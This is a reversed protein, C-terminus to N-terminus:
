FIYDGSRLSKKIDLIDEPSTRCCGGIIEAGARVWQPVLTQWDIPGHDSIWLKSTPDYTDGANPYVIIKKTTYPRCNQIAKLINEPETCNVGIARIQKVQELSKVAYSLSTGDWLHLGGETSFSLFVSTKPFKTVILDVIAKVEEFNPMTELLLVDVQNQVLRTIRERHFLQYERQTLQYDGTYEAGNALYAGYPGISGAIIGETELSENLAQRALDVAVDILKYGTSADDAFPIHVQYTDTIAIQSGVNFYDRHISKITDPSQLLASASWLENDIKINRKELESGLGGDLLIIKKALIRDLATM